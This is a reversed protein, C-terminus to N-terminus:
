HPLPGGIVHIFGNNVEMGTVLVEVGGMTNGDDSQSFEVTEGSVMEVDMSADGVVAVEAIHAAVFAEPDDGVDGITEDTPAFVSVPGEGTLVDGHGAQEVAELFTDFQGIAALVDGVTNDASAGAASLAIPMAVAGGLISKWGKMDSVGKTSKLRM